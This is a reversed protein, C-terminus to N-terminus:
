QPSIFNMVRWASSGNPHDSDLQKLSKDKRLLEAEDDGPESLYAPRSAIYELYDKHIAEGQNVLEAKDSPTLHWSLAAGGCFDFRANQIDVGQEKWYRCFLDFQQDSRLSQGAVRSSVLGNLPAVLQHTFGETQSVPEQSESQYRVQVVLIRDFGKEAFWQKKSHEWAQIGLEETPKPHTTTFEDNLAMLGDDIWRNLAVIGYNDYYGGDM